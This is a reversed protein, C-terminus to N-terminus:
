SGRGLGRAQWSKFQHLCFQWMRTVKKPLIRLAHCALFPAQVDLVAAFVHHKLMKGQFHAERRLRTCKILLEIELLAGLIFVALRSDWGGSGGFMPLVFHKVITKNKAWKSKRQRAKERRQSRRWQQQMQGHTPLKVELNRRCSTITPQLEMFFPSRLIFLCVRLDREREGKGEGEGHIQEM